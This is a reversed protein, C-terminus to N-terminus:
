ILLKGWQRLSCTDFIPKVAALVAAPQHANPVAATAHHRREYDIPSLYGIASHLRHCNYFEM